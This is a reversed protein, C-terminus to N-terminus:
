PVRRAVVRNVLVRGVEISLVHGALQRPFPPVFLGGGSPRSFTGRKNDATYM